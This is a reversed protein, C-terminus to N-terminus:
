RRATTAFRRCGACTPSRRPSSASSTSCTCRASCAPARRRAGAVCPAPPGGGAHRLRRLVARPGLRRRASRRSARPRDARRRAAAGARDARRRRAADRRRPDGRHSVRRRRVRPARRARRPRHGPLREGGGRRDGDGRLPDRLLRRCAAPLPQVDGRQSVGRRDRPRQDRLGVEPGRSLQGDDAHALRPDVPVAPGRAASMVGLPGGWLLPARRNDLLGRRVLVRLSPPRAAAASRRRRPRRSPAACPPRRRHEDRM